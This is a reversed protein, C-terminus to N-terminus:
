FILCCPHLLIFLYSIICIDSDLLSTALEELLVLCGSVDLIAHRLLFQFPEFIPYLLQENRVLVLFCCIEKKLNLSAVKRLYDLILQHFIVGNPNIFQESLVRIFFFLDM